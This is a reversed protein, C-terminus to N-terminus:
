TSITHNNINIHLPSCFSSDSMQYQNNHITYEGYQNSKIANRFLVFVHFQWFDDQYINIFVVTYTCDGQTSNYTIIEFVLWEKHSASRKIGHYICSIGKCLYIRVFSAARVILFFSIFGSRQLVKEDTQM